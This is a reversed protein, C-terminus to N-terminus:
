RTYLEGSDGTSITSHTEAIVWAVLCLFSDCLYLANRCCDTCGLVFFQQLPVTRKQLLGDLWACVVAVFHEFVVVKQLCLAILTLKSSTVLLM